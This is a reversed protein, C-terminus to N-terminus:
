GTAVVGGTRKQTFKINSMRKHEKEAHRTLARLVQRTPERKIVPIKDNAKRKATLRDIARYMGNREPEVFKNSINWNNMILREAQTMTPSPNLSATGKKRFRRRIKKAIRSMLSM